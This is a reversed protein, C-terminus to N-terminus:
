DEDTPDHDRDRGWPLFGLREAGALLVLGGAILGGLPGYYLEGIASFGVAAVFFFAIAAKGKWDM